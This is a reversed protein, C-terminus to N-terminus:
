KMWWYICKWTTMKIFIFYYTIIFRSINRTSSHSHLQISFRQLNTEGTFTYGRGTERPTESLSSRTYPSSRRSRATTDTGRSRRAIRRRRERREPHLRACSCPNRRIGATSPACWGSSRANIPRSSGWRERWVRRPRPACSSRSRTLRRNGRHRLSLLWGSRRCHCESRFCEVSWRRRSPVSSPPPSHTERFM